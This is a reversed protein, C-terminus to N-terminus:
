VCSIFLLISSDKVGRRRRKILHKLYYEEGGHEFEESVGQLCGAQLCDGLELRSRSAHGFFPYQLSNEWLFVSESSVCSGQTLQCSAALSIRSVSAEMEGDEKIIFEGETLELRDQSLVLSEEVMQSGLRVQTGQCSIVQSDVHIIGQPVYDYLVSDGIRISRTTLDPLTVIGERYKIMTPSKVATVGRNIDFCCEVARVTLLLFENCPEQVVHVRLLLTEVDIFQVTEDVLVPVEAFRTDMKMISAVRPVRISAQLLNGVRRAFRGSGGELWSRMEKPLFKNRISCISGALGGELQSLRRGTNPSQLNVTRLNCTFLNYVTSFCNTSQLYVAQLSCTFLKYVASFCSTSQLYVDQLSRIFLKYVASFCSTSQLYFDNARGEM